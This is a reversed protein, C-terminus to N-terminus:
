SGDTHIEFRAGGATGETATITWGHAEILNRTIALGFGTRSDNTTFGQAFVSQEDAAPLGTGTDEIYFGGADLEGVTVTM